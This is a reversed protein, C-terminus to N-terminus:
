KEIEFISSDVSLKIQFQYYVNLSMLVHKTCKDFPQLYIYTDEKSDTLTKKM